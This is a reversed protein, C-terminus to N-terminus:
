IYGFSPFSLSFMSLSLLLFYALFLSNILILKRRSDFCSQGSAQLWFQRPTPLHNAGSYFLFFFSRFFTCAVCIQLGTTTFGHPYGFLLPWPSSYPIYYLFFMATSPAHITATSASITHAFWWPPIFALAITRRMSFKFCRKFCCSLYIALCM